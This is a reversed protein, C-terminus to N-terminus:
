GDLKMLGAATPRFGCGEYFGALHLEYDVHLWECGAATVERTLERVLDQGIGRHRYEVDVVTDLLFAHRGGDWCAHVFGVLRNGDLAAVWSVSHRALREAWPEVRVVASGSALAHLISLEQDDVPFRVRLEIGSPM